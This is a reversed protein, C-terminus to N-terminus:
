HVGGHNSEHPELKSKDWQSWNPSFFIEKSKKPFFFESGNPDHIIGAVPSYEKRLLQGVSLLNKNITPIFLVQSYAKYRVWM